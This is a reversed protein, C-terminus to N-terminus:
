GPEEPFEVRVTVLRFPNEPVTNSVTQTLTGAGGHETNLTVPVALGADTVSVDPPVAVEVMRIPM